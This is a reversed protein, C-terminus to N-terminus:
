AVTIKSPIQTQALHSTFIMLTGKRSCKSASIYGFYDDNDRSRSNMMFSSADRNNDYSSALRIGSDLTDKTSRSFHSIRPKKPVPETYKDNILNSSNMNM